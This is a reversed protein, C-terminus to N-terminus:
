SKDGRDDDKKDEDVPKGGPNFLNGFFDQVQKTMPEIGKMLNSVAAALPDKSKDIDEQYQEQAKKFDDFVDDEKGENRRKYDGSLIKEYHGGDVWSKLETLRLVAFPHTENSLNLLKFVSDLLDGGKDYEAAQEFFENINMQSLDGGGAMKMELSFSDDPNQVALLGARDASLESKRSWELLALVIVRIVLAAMPIQVLMFPIQLLIWLMTKYLVHGSLCHGIEHGLVAMIEQESLDKLMASYLVIFPTNVGIAGANLFPSQSIYLEPIQRLDLRACAELFIKHLKSFQKESSRVTSALMFLRYSKETTAGIILKLLEDVGPIQRLANLAARDAPHEWAKSSIDTLYKIPRKANPM